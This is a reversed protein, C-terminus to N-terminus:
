IRAYIAQCRRELTPSIIGRSLYMVVRGGTPSWAADLRPVIEVTAADRSATDVSDLVLAFAAYVRVSGDDNTYSRGTIWLEVIRPDEHCVVRLREIAKEDPREPPDIWESTAV